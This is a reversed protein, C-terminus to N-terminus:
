DRLLSCASVGGRVERWKRSVGDRPTVPRGLEKGSDRKVKGGLSNGNM